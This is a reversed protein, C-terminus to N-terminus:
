RGLEKILADFNGKSKGLAIDVDSMQVALKYRQQSGRGRWPVEELIKRTLLVPLIEAYFTSAFSKGLRVRLWDEDIQTSRLFSRFLRELIKVRLDVVNEGVVAAHADGGLTAGAKRLRQRILTPDFNQDEDPLLLISEIRCSDFTCGALDTDAQLDLREFECDKFAIDFLASSQIASPQFHSKLFSINHLNRSLLIDPSFFMDVFSIAEHDEGL